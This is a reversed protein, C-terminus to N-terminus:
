PDKFLDLAMNPFYGNDSFFLNRYCRLYTRWLWELAMKPFYYNDSFFTKELLKVLPGVIIRLGNKTLLCNKM